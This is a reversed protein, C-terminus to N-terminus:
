PQPRRCCFSRRNRGSAVSGSPFTEGETAILDPDFHVPAKFAHRISAILYPQLLGRALLM